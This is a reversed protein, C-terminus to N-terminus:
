RSPDSVTWTWLRVHEVDLEDPEVGLVSDEGIELITLSTPLTARAVLRGEPDFVLWSRSPASADSGYERVWLRGERDVELQDYFPFHDAAPV